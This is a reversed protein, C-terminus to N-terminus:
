RGELFRMFARLIDIEGQLLPTVDDQQMIQKAEASDLQWAVTHTGRRTFLTLHDPLTTGELIFAMGLTHADCALPRLILSSAFRELAPLQLTNKGQPDGVRQDDRKFEFIIPLGFAARPFKQVQSIIQQHQPSRRGTLRRVEDQEPWRNRGPHRKGDPERVMPRQQRFDKLKEILARWVSLADGEFRQHSPLSLTIDKALHPVDAPWHDGQIYHILQRRIWQEVTARDGSPRQVAKGDVEVCKLAGFGRRTRAGIGGFTEWAWLAAEVEDRAQEPFTISLTFAVGEQVTGRDPNLPFAAYGDQSLPSGVHIPNGRRDTVKGNRDTAVFVHGPQVNVVCVEVPSPGGGQASAPAGWIADERAKMDALNGNFAGGRCARWWFRL